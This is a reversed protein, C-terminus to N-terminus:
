CFALVEPAGDGGGGGRAESRELVRSERQQIKASKEDMVEFRVDLAAAYARLDTRSGDRTKRYMTIVQSRRVIQFLGLPVCLCSFCVFPIRLWPPVSDDIFTLVGNVIDSIVDGQEVAIYVWQNRINRNLMKKLRNSLSIRPENVAEIDKGGYKNYLCGICACTLMLILIVATIVGIIAIFSVKKSPPSPDVVRISYPSGSIDEASDWNPGKKITITLEGAPLLVEHVYSGSIRATDAVAEGTRADEAKFWFSAGRTTIDNGFRDRPMIEVRTSSTDEAKLIDEVMDAYDELSSTTESPDITTAQVVFPFPSFPIEALDGSSTQVAVYLKASGAETREAVFSVSNTSSDSRSFESTITSPSFGYYYTETTDAADTQAPVVQFTFPSGELRSSVRFDVSGIEEWIDVTWNGADFLTANAVIGLENMSFRVSGDTTVSTEGLNPLELSGVVSMKYNDTQPIVRMPDIGSGDFANINLSLRLEEGAVIKSNEANATSTTAPAFSGPRVAFTGLNELDGGGLATVFEFDHTFALIRDNEAFDWEVDVSTVSPDNSCLANSGPLCAHGIGLDTVVYIDDNTGKSLKYPIANVESTSTGSTVWKDSFKDSTAGPNLTSPPIGGCAGNDWNFEECNFNVGYSGDDCYVDFPWTTLVEYSNFHTTKTGACDIFFPEINNNVEVTETFTLPDGDADEVTLGEEAALGSTKDFLYIAKDTVSSIAVQGSEEIYLVGGPSPVTAFVGEKEGQVNYVAIEDFSGDDNGMVVLFQDDSIFEMHTVTSVDLDMVTEFAM